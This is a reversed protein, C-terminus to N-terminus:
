FVGVVAEQWHIMDLRQLPEKLMANVGTIEHLTNSSFLVPPHQQEHLHLKWAIGTNM